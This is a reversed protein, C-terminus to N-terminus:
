MDVIVYIKNSTYEKGDNTKIKVYYEANEKHNITFPRDIIVKEDNRYWEIEYSNEDFISTGYDLTVPEKSIYGSKYNIKHNDISADLIIEIKDNEAYPMHCNKDGLNYIDIKNSDFKKVYCKKNDSITAYYKDKKKDNVILIENYNTLEKLPHNSQKVIELPREIACYEHSINSNYYVSNLNEEKSYVVYYNADASQPCIKLISPNKIEKLYKEISTIKEEMVKKESDENKKKLCATFFVICVVIIIINKKM